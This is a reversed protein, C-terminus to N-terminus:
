LDRNFGYREWLANLRPRTRVAEVLRALAPLRAMLARPAPHWAAMMALYPDAVSYRQGLLFPGEGLAAALITWNADLARLGARKVGEAEGPDSCYRAPYSARLDPEYINPVSYFLWRLFRVRDPDGPLPVLGAEPHSEALHLAIAASETMVQGDPLRLVPIRGDPNLALYEATRNAGAKSNVHIEDVPLALEALVAHPGFSGSRERWYLTYTM